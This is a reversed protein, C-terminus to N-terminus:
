IIAKIKDVFQNILQELKEEKPSVVGLLGGLGKSLDEDM